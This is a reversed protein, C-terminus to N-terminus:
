EEITITVKKHIICKYSEATGLDCFPIGGSGVSIFKRDSDYKCCYILRGILATAHPLSTDIVTALDGTEMDLLTTQKVYPGPQKIDIKTM